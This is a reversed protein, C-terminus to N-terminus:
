PREADADGAEGAPRARFLKVPRKIGKLRREGIFSWQYGDELQDHLEETALVSGARAHGTVRSALNVTHGFWDGARRVAPGAALGARLEPLDEGAQPAREVLEFVAALLAAPDTSVLMAADGITKVLQVPPEAVEDALTALRQAVSSLEDVPLSSGLRTFGVMDVFGVAVDRANALPRGTQLEAQAIYEEQVRERVHLNAMWALAPGLNPQLAEAMARLRRSLDLETDGERLFSEGFMALVAEAVRAMSQGMVRTLELAAEEPVGADRLAGGFGVAEVDEESFVRDEPGPTPLGIARRQRVIWDPDAGTRRALEALTHQGRGLQREVALLPLREEEVARRLEDLGVGQEHLETVLQARAERRSADDLGGLLGAAAFDPADGM